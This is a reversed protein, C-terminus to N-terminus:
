AAADNLQQRVWGQKYGRLWAVRQLRERSKGAGRLVQHYTMRKLQEDSRDDEGSM